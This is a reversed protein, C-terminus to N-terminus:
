WTNLRQPPALDALEEASKCLSSSLCQAAQEVGHLQLAQYALVACVLTFADVRWHDRQAQEEFLHKASVM